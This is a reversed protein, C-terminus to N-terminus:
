EYCNMRLYELAHSLPEMNRPPDRLEIEVVVGGRYGDKRLQKFLGALDVQGEGYRVSRGGAVDKIHVLEIRNKFETYAEKWPIGAAELHGVELLVKLRDDAVGSVVQRLDDLTTLATGKHNQLVVNLHRAEALDLVRGAGEIYDKLTAAKYIVVDCGLKVADNMSRELLEYSLEDGPNLVPLHFSILQLGYARARDRYENADDMGVRFASGAWGSFVEFYNFGLNAYACFAEESSFEPHCAPSAVLRIDYTGNTDDFKEWASRKM